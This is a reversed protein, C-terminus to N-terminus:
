YFSLFFLSLCFCHYCLTVLAVISKYLLLCFPLCLLLPCKRKWKPHFSPDLFDECLCSMTSFRWYQVPTQQKSNHHSCSKKSKEEQNDVQEECSELILLVGITDGRSHCQLPIATGMSHEQQVAIGHTLCVCMRQTGGSVDTVVKLLRSYWCLYPFDLALSILCIFEGVM